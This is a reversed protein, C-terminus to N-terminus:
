YEFEIKAAPVPSFEGPEQSGSLVRLPNRSDLGVGLTTTSGTKETSSESGPPSAPRTETGIATEPTGGAGESRQRRKIYQSLGAISIEVGNEDLFDCVQGLTCNGNRLRTIDAWFPALKSQKVAPTVKSLFEDANM